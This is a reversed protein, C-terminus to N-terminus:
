LDRLFETLSVAAKARPGGLSYLRRIPGKRPRTAAIRFVGADKLVAAHFAVNGLSDDTSQAYDLSNLKTAEHAHEIMALRKPNGITMVLNAADSREMVAHYESSDSYAFPGKDEPQNDKQKDNNRLWSCNDHYTRKFV